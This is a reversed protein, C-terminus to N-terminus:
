KEGDKGLSAFYGMFFDRVLYNQLSKLDVPDEPDYRTEMQDKLGTVKGKEDRLIERMNFNQRQDMTTTSVLLGEIRNPDESPAPMDKDKDKADHKAMWAESVQSIVLPMYDPQEEHYGIGLARMVDQKTLGEPPWDAMVVMTLSWEDTERHKGHITFSMMVSGSDILEEGAAKKDHEFIENLKDHPVMKPGAITQFQHLLTMRDEHNEPIPIDM